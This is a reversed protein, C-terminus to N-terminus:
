KDAGWFTVILGGTVILLGGVIVPVSPISKFTFYSVVQWVVFLTAIYLGVVKGFEVPALNLFFAYGFLLIAGLLGFVIRAVGTHEYMTKRIMADGCVELTTALLLFFIPHINQLTTKM